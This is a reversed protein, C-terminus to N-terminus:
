IRTNYGLVTVEKANLDFDEEERFLTINFEIEAEISFFYSCLLDLFKKKKGKDLYDCFGGKKIPGVIVSLHDTYHDYNSGSVMDIGLKCDGLLSNQADNDYTNYNKRSIKVQDGLLLSLVQCTMEVNGVIRYTFPLIRILRSAMETSLDDHIGLLEYFIEPSISSQLRCLFDQEFTEIGVGYSFIENEFPQFFLRANKQEQKKIRYEQIMVDVSNETIDSSLDHVINEPLMDYISDRSLILKLFPASGFSYKGVESDLIDYRYARSFQGDKEIIFDEYELDKNILLDNVIVEAKIDYPLASIQGAINEFYKM